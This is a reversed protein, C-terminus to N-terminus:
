VNQYIYKRKNIFFLFFNFMFHQDHTYNLPFYLIFSLMYYDYFYYDIHKTHIIVGYFILYTDYPLIKFIKTWIILVRKNKSNEIKRKIHCTWGLMFDLVM